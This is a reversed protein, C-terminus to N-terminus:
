KERVMVKINVRHLFHSSSYTLGSGDGNSDMNVEILSTGTHEKINTPAAPQVLTLPRSPPTQGMTSTETTQTRPYLHEFELVIHQCLRKLLTQYRPFDTARLEKAQSLLWYVISRTEETRQWLSKKEPAGSSDPTPEAQPAPAPDDVASEYESEGSESESDTVDPDDGLNEGDSIESCSNPASNADEYDSSDSDSWSNRYDNKVWRKWGDREEHIIQELM